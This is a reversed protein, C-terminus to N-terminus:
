RMQIGSYGGTQFRYKLRLEFNDPAVRDPGAGDWVLFTNHKLPNEATTFGTIAGDEVTWRGPEGSWGALDMGNFIPRFGAPVEAAVAMLCGLWLVAGPLCRCLVCRMM